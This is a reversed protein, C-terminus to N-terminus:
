LSECLIHPQLPVGCTVSGSNNHTIKLVVSTLITREVQLCRALALQAVRLYERLSAPAHGNVHGPRNDSSTPLFASVSLCGEWKGTGNGSATPYQLSCASSRLSYRLRAGNKWQVCFDPLPGNMMLMCKCSEYQTLVSESVHGSSGSSSTDVGNFAQQVRPQLYLIIKPTRSRLVEFLRTMRHNVAVLARPLQSFPVRKLVTSPHVQFLTSGYSTSSTQKGQNRTVPAEDGDLALSRRMVNNSNQHSARIDPDARAGGNRTSSSSNTTTNTSSSHYGHRTHLIVDVEARMEDTLSCIVLEPTCKTSAILRCLRPNGRKDRLTTVCIVEGHSSVQVLEYGQSILNGYQHQSYSNSGSSSTNINSNAKSQTIPACYSLAGIGRALHIWSVCDTAGEKIVTSNHISANWSSRVTSTPVPLISTQLRYPRVQHAATLQPSTSTSLAVTSERVYGGGLSQRLGRVESLWSSGSANSASMFASQSSAVTPVSSSPKVLESVNAISQSMKPLPIQASQQVPHPTKRTMACGSYLSSEEIPSETDTVPTTRSINSGTTRNTSELPNTYGRNFSKANTHSDKSIHSEMLQFSKRINNTDVPVIPSPDSTIGTKSTSPSSNSMSVRTHSIVTLADRHSTSRSTSGMSGSGSIISGTGTSGSSTRLVQSESSYPRLFPHHLLASATPRRM